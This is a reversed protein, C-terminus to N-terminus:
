VDKSTCSLGGFCIIIGSLVDMASLNFRQHVAYLLGVRPGGPSGLHYFNYIVCRGICSVYSVHTQDRPWSSGRSSPVAVYELTRAQLIGRVSSGPPSCDLPDWLTPCSESVLGGGGLHKSYREIWKIRENWGDSKQLKRMFIKYM